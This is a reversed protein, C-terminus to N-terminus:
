FLGFGFDDDDYEFHNWFVMSGSMGNASEVTIEFRNNCRKEDNYTFFAEEIDCHVSPLDLTDDVGADPIGSTCHRCSFTTMCSTEDNCDASLARADSADPARTTRMLFPPPRRRTKSFAAQPPSSRSRSCSFSQGFSTNCRECTSQSVDTM